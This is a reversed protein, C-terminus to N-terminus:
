SDIRWALAVSLSFAVCILLFFHCWPILTAIIIGEHCRLQGLPLWGGLPLLIFLRWVLMREILTPSAADDTFDAISPGGDSVGRELYQKAQEGSCNFL